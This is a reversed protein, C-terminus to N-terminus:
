TGVIALGQTRRTRADVITEEHTLREEPREERPAAAPAFILAAPGVPIGLVGYNQGCLGRPVRPARQWLHQMITNPGPLPRQGVVTRIQRQFSLLHDPM